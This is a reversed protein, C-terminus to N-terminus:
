FLLSAHLFLPVIDTPISSEPEENSDKNACFDLKFYSFILQFNAILLTITSIGRAELQFSIMKLGDYKIEHILYLHHFDESTISSSSSEKRSMTVPLESTHKEPTEPPPTAEEPGFVGNESCFISSFTSFSM